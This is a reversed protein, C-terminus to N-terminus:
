MPKAVFSYNPDISFQPYPLITSEAIKTMNSWLLTSGLLKIEGCRMLATLLIDGAEQLPVPGEALANGLSAEIQPLGGTHGLQAGGATSPLAGIQKLLLQAPRPLSFLFPNPLHYLLASLFLFCAIM